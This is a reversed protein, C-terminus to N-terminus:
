GAAQAGRVQYIAILGVVSVILTAWAVGFAVTEWNIQEM